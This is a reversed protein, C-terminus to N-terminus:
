NPDTPVTALAGPLGPTISLQNPPAMLYVPINALLATTSGNYTLIISCAGPSTFCWPPAGHYDDFDDTSNLFSTYCNWMNGHACPAAQCPSDGHPNCTDNHTPLNEGPLYVAGHGNGYVTWYTYCNGYLDPDVCEFDVPWGGNHIYLLFTDGNELETSNPNLPIFMGLRNYLTGFAGGGYGGADFSGCYGLDPANPAPQTTSGPFWAMSALTGSVLVTTGGTSTSNYCVFQFNVLDLPINAPTHSSIIVQSTNMPSFNGTPQQPDGTYLNYPYCQAFWLAGWTHATYPDYQDPNLPYSWNGPPQCDTPDGWVPNSGGSRITFGVTPPSPPLNIHFTWLITGAVLTLAVLLVVGIIEAIGGRRQHRWRRLRDM